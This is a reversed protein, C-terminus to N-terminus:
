AADALRYLALSMMGPFAPQPKVLLPQARKNWPERFVFANKGNWTAAEKNNVFITYTGDSLPFFEIRTRHFSGQLPSTAWGCLMGLPKTLIIPIPLAMGSGAGPSANQAQVNSAPADATRYSQFTEELSGLELQGVFARALEITMSDGLDSLAVLGNDTLEGELILAAHLKSACLTMLREQMTKRNILFHVRVDQTQGPRWSRRCAQRLFYTSATTQWFIITPFGFLNLGSEVKKVHTILCDYKGRGMKKEIWELRNKANGKLLLPKLGASELLRVLYCDAGWKGTYEAYILAKRGEQKAEKVLEILRRDKNTKEIDISAAEAVVKMERDHVQTYKQPMDPWALLTHLMQGLVKMDGKRLARRVEAQLEPEFREYEERVEDDLDVLELREEYGPLSYAIDSIRLFVCCDAFYRRFIEPSIGPRERVHYEAHTARGTAPDAESNSQVRELCGFEEVFGTISTYPPLLRKREEKNYNLAFVRQLLYFVDSARGGSLTGTLVLTKKIVGALQGLVAGQITSSSKNKHVEDVILFQFHKPLFKKIYNVPAYVKQGDYVPGWLPEGCNECRNRRTKLLNGQPHSCRLCLPTEIPVLANRLPAGGKNKTELREYRRQIFCTTRWQASTKMRYLDCIWIEPKDPKVSENKLRILRSIADPGHIDIVNIADGFVAQIERMWTSILTTPCLVLTRPHYGLVLHLCWVVFLSILTKGTGMEAILGLARKRLFGKVLACIAEQQALYPTKGKDKCTERVRCAIASQEDPIFVPASLVQVREAMTKSQSVIVEKLSETRILM